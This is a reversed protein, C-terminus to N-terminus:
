FLKTRISYIIWKPFHCENLGSGLLLALALYSSLVSLRLPQLLLERVPTRIAPYAGLPTDTSHLEMEGQQGVVGYSM